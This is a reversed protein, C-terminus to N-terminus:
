GLMQYHGGGNRQFIRVTPASGSPGSGVSPVVFYPKVYYIGEGADAVELDDQSVWNNGYAAFPRELASSLAVIESSGAWNGETGTIRLYDEAHELVFDYIQEVPTESVLARVRQYVASMDLRNVGKALETMGSSIFEEAMDRYFELMRWHLEDPVGGGEARLTAFRKLFATEELMALRRLVHARELASAGEWAPAAWGPAVRVVAAAFDSATVQPAISLFLCNGGAGHEINRWGHVAQLHRLIEEDGMSRREGTTAGLAAARSVLGRAQRGRRPWRPPAVHDFAVARGGVFHALTAFAAGAAAAALAFAFAPVSPASCLWRWRRRRRLWQPEACVQQMHQTTGVSLM